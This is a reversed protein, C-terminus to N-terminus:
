FPRPLKGLSGNKIYPWYWKFNKLVGIKPFKNQAFFEYLATVEKFDVQIFGESSTAPLLHAFRRTEESYITSLIKTKLQFEAATLNIKLEPYANYATSFVPISTTQFVQHVAFSVDQHHPHGYEGLVNHTFVIDTHSTLIFEQLKKTLASLPIRSEFRDPFGWWQTKTVGLSQCARKFQRHRRNGQGDANGDTVCIIEWAYKPAKNQILGSFFLTEDDPHAIIILGNKKRKM